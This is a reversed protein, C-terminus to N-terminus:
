RYGLELMVPGLERELRARLSAPMAAYDNKKFGELQTCYGRLTPAVAAFDNWRLKQYVRRLTAVPDADLEAFSVEALSGPPIRNREKFYVRYLMAHQDLIYQTLDEDTPKALYCYSFYEQAMHASSLFVTLPDRHVFIFKARPFLKYLLPLRGIHVPSKIVLPRGGTALSVKKMYWQFATVWAQTDEESCGEFTCYPLLARYRPMFTLCAYPSIGGTLMNLAIEDEAPTSFSLPM